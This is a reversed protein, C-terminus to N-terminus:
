DKRYERIHFCRVGIHNCIDRVAGVVYHLYSVVAVTTLAALAAPESLPAEGRLGLRGWYCNIVALALAALSPCRLDELWLPQKAMHHVIMRTTMHAIIVELCLLQLTPHSAFTPWGPGTSLAAGLLLVLLLPVLQAVGPRLGIQKDGREEEPLGEPCAAAVKGLSGIMITLTVFTFFLLTSESAAFSPAWPGLLPRKWVDEGVAGTVLFIAIQAFQTETVGVYGNSWNLTGTHYEEWSLTGTCSLARRSAQAMYFALETNTLLLLTQWSAGYRQSAVIDILFFMKVLADCGHDFLQGLPSSSNTRRAQKGDIADLTQYVFVSAALVFYIWSPVPEDLSPCHWALLATALLVCVLGCFTVLNPAIWRPLWTVARNWFPTMVNDFYTYTGPKYKYAAIM